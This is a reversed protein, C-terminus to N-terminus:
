GSLREAEDLMSGVERRLLPNLEVARRVADRAKRASEAKAAGDQSARVELLLLGGRTALLRPHNPNVALGRTCADLGAARHKAQEAPPAAIAALRREAEALVEYADALRPGREVALLGLARARELAAREPRHARVEVDALLLAGRADTHPNCWVYTADRRSCDAIAKGAAELAPLPAQGRRIADEAQLLRIWAIAPFIGVADPGLSRVCSRRHISRCPSSARL